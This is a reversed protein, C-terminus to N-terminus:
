GAIINKDLPLLTGIGMLGLIMLDMYNYAYNEAM